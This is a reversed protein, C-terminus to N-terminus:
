TTQLKRLVLITRGNAGVPHRSAIVFHRAAEEEFAQISWREASVPRGAALRRCWPDESPVFEAVLVDRTLATVQDVVAALPLGDGVVLHHLVALCLVLDFGGAARALFSPREANRWGTAPTPDALDVVLPLVRSSSGSMHRFMRDVVVEDRDIAVVDAGCSAALASFAGDNAGVDLVRTPRHTRCVNEVIQLRAAHYETAHIAPDRYSTWNSERSNGDQSELVKRLHALLRRLIFKARLEDTVPLSPFPTRPRFRSLLVPGTVAGFVGPSLRSRWRLPPYLEEPTLGDRAGTFIRRLSWGLHRNAVLPLIFTRVFQGYPLWVPSRPDRDEVSLADVFIPQGGMFLVNLPTADKIGRSEDLLEAALDLTLLGAAKLMGPTWECPHSPFPVVEHELVTTVPGAGPMTPWDTAALESTGVFRREAQWRAITPSQLCARANDAGEPHVLRFVRDQVRMLRGAPDRLSLPYGIM